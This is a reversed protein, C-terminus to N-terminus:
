QSLKIVSVKLSTAVNMVLLLFAIFFVQNKIIDTPDKSPNGDYDVNLFTCILSNCKLGFHGYTGALIPIQPLFGLIWALAPGLKSALRFSSSNM